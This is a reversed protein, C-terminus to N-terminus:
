KRKNTKQKQKKKGSRSNSAGCCVVFFLRAPRPEVGRPEIPGKREGITQGAWIILFIYIISFHSFSFLFFLLAPLNFQFHTDISLSFLSSM